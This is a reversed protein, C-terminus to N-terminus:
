APREAKAFRPRGFADNVVKANKYGWAQLAHLLAEGTQENIEWWLWGGPKLWQLGGLAMARYFLLPDESPAFLALHPEYQLVNPRMASAEEPIVYPPNSVLGDFGQWPPLTGAQLVSGLVWDVEAGLRMANDQARDLAARSVELATVKWTPMELAMSVALCGSGTGVELVHGSAARRMTQVAHALLEETEPRPILVEPGVGFTRGAFHAKGTVYQVPEAKVLRSHLAWFEEESHAAWDAANWAMLVKWPTNLWDEMLWRLMTEAEMRDYLALLPAVFQEKLQAPTRM